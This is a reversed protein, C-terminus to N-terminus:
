RPCNSSWNSSRHNRQNSARAGPFMRDASPPLLQRCCCLSVTTERLSAAAASPLLLNGTSFYVSLRTQSAANEKIYKASVV